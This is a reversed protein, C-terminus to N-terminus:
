SKKPSRKLFTRGTSDSRQGTDRDTWGTQRAQRHRQHITALHNSPNLHFKGRLHAEAGRCQTLHDGLERWFPSLGGGWNKAWTRQRWVAPHILMGSLISSPRLGPSKTNSPSGACGELKRGMDTRTLCSSPDLHFNACPLGRGHGCQTLHPGLEGDLLPVAVGWNKAWTRQRWVAPHILIGSPISTPMPGPSMTNSPSGAEGGWFPPPM